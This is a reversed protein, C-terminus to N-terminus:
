ERYGLILILCNLISELVAIIQGPTDLQNSHWGLPKLLLIYRWYHEYSQCVSAVFTWFYLAPLGEDCIVSTAKVAYLPAHAVHRFSLHANIVWLCETNNSLTCCNYPQCTRIAWTEYITISFMDTASFIRFFMLRRLLKHRLPPLHSVHCLLEASCRSICFRGFFLLSCVFNTSGAFPIATAFNTFKWGTPSRRM